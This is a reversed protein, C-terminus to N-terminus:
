KWAQIVARYRHVPLPDPANKMLRRVRGAIARIKKLRTLNGIEPLGVTVMTRSFGAARCLGVLAAENPAWWNTPDNNLESGPFFECLAHSKLHPHNIHIAETEILAVERTIMAVRRLALLPNEMHYLSGLFFVVDFIGLKSIDMEMFDGVVPQVKSNRSRHVLDFGERGSLLEPNWYRGEHLFRQDITGKLKDAHYKHWDVAWVYYDLATVERAGGREAEFAFFGDWCNIDLVSRNQLPPLQLSQWESQLTSASKHGNTFVGQGVDISHFWHPVASVRQELEAKSFIM